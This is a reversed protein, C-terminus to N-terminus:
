FGPYGYGMYGPYGLYGPYGYGTYGPGLYGPYGYGTYGPYGLYGPYGYGMYGPYGLYDPYPYPIPGGWGLTNNASYSKLLNNWATSNGINYYSYNYCAYRGFQDYRCSSYYTAPPHAVSPTATQNAMSPTGNQTGNQAQYQGQVGFSFVLMILALLVLFIRSM